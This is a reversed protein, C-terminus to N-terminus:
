YLYFYNKRSECASRDGFNCEEPTRGLRGKVNVECYLFTSAPSPGAIHWAKECIQGTSSPPYKNSRLLFRREM